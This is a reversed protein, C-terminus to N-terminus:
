MTEQTRSAVQIIKLKSRRVARGQGSIFKQLVHQDPRKRELDSVKVYLLKVENKSKKKGRESQKQSLDLQQLFGCPSSYFIVAESKM